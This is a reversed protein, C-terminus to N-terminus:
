FRYGIGAQFTDFKSSIGSPADEIRNNLGISYRISAFVKKSFDYGAGFGLGIGFKNIGESDDVIFDLQPGAQVNFEDSVYYKAMIPVIIENSSEGEQYVSAFHIEPQINFKESVNFDAFFGIYYGSANDSVTIGEASVSISLNHFGTTAGYTTEQANVKVLGIIAVFAIFVIKKIKM